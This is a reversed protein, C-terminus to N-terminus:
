EGFCKKLQASRHQFIRVLDPRVFFRNILPEFIWAAIEYQVQDRVQTGGDKVEFTHTHIWKRYPGKLQRDVFRHPPDWETIETIWHIPIGKLRLTYELLTGAHVEVPMRTIIRFHLWAPTIADLNAANSFFEFVKDIPQSIWIEDSFIRTV